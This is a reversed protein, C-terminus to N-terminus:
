AWWKFLRNVLSSNKMRNIQTELQDSRATELLYSNQLRINDESLTRIREEKVRVAVEAVQKAAEADKIREAMGLLGAQLDKVNNRSKVKKDM